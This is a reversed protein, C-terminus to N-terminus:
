NAEMCIEVCKRALIEGPDLMPITNSNMDIRASLLPLETCGLIVLEAGANIIHALALRFEELNIGDTYGAKVGKEGYVASMVLGQHVEDPVVVRRGTQAILDHYIRSKLTGHTALLGITGVRDHHDEICQATELLMNIIPISLQCQISEVFAHATNCPIAILDAGYAELRKCAALISTTPNTGEGLLYATRDPITPDHDVIMRIHDQDRSAPTNRIIKDLFDVTASPGVGGVVGLIKQQKSM